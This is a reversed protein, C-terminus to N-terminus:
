FPPIEIDICKNPYGNKYISDWKDLYKFRQVILFTIFLIVILIIIHYPNIM